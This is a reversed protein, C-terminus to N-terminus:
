LNEAPIGLGFLRGRRLASRIKFVREVDIEPLRDAARLGPQVDAMLLDAFGAVPGLRRGAAPRNGARLALPGAVHGLHGTRHFEVQGTGATRPRARQVAGAGGAMTVAAHQPVLRDFHPDRRARLVARPQADRAFSVGARHPHRRPIEVDRQPHLRMGYELAVAVVDLDAHRNGDGLS